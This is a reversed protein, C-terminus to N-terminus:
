NGIFQDKKNLMFRPLFGVRCKTSDVNVYAAVALESTEDITVTVEEFTVKSGIEVIEGCCRHIDCSRGNSSQNLGYIEANKNM